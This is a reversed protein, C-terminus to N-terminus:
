SERQAILRPQVRVGDRVTDGPNVIVTDGEALGKLVEIERGYDRGLTVQRLKVYGDRSVTPVESGRAGAVVANAPIMLPPIKRSVDLLVQGYM